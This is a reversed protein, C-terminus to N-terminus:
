PKKRLVFLHRFAFRRLLPLGSILSDLLRGRITIGMPYKFLSTSFPLLLQVWRPGFLPLIQFSQQQEIVFGARAITHLLTTYPLPYPKAWGYLRHSVVGTVTALSMSNGLDLVAIGGPRLVRAVEKIAREAHPVHYLSAMSFVTDFSGRAFPLATADGEVLRVRDACEHGRLQVALANLMTRSFDLGVISGVQGLLRSVYAGTGCCLDLVQKGRCHRELLDLRLEMVKRDYRTRPAFELQSPVYSDRYISKNPNADM